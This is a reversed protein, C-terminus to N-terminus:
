DIATTEATSLNDDLVIPVGNWYDVQINYNMDMPGMQLATTKLTRIYERGTRNTYLITRGDADGRVYNIIDDMYPATPLHSSDIQTMAAVDYSGSSLFAIDGQYSAQYVLKKAHTTTNTVEAVTGGNNLVEVQLYSGSSVTKPNFLIGCGIPNFKVAIISVRSGTTGGRQVRNGYAKAMEHLGLPGAVDGFTSNTGYFMSASVKQGFSEAFVPAQESFYGRVGTPWNECVGKPESQITGLTKLDTQILEDDVTSDTQSGGINVYSFSPLASVKKHKHFWNGNAAIAQATKLFGSANELQSMIPVLGQGGAETVLKRLTANAM